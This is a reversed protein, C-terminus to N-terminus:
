ILAECFKRVTEIRRGWGNGYRKFDKLSTLYDLRLDLYKNLVSKIPLRNCAGITQNGVIGDTSVGLAKQLSIVAKKIGSNVAFDFVAVSLADPMFDCKCRQWYDQRYIDMALGRTLSKIDIEPYSKKCIGYKTEGGKDFPDNVYGGEVEMLLEFAKNFIRETM